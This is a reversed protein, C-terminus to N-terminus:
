KFKLGSLDVRNEDIEIGKDIEDIVEKLHSEFTSKFNDITILENDEINDYYLYLNHYKDQEQNITGLGGEVVYVQTKTGRYKFMLHIYNNSYMNRMRVVKVVELEKGDIVLHKNLNGEFIELVDSIFLGNLESKDLEM